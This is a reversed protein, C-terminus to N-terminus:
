RNTVSVLHLEYPSLGSVCKKYQVRYEFSCTSEVDESIYTPHLLYKINLIFFPADSVNQAM